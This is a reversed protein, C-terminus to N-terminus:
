PSAVVTSQERPRRRAFIHPIGRGVMAFTSGIRQPPVEVPNKLLRHVQIV